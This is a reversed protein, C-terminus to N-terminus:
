RPFPNAMVGLQRSCRALWYKDPTTLHSRPLFCSKGGYSLPYLMPKRFRPDYTRIRGPTNTEALTPHDQESEIAQLILPKREVRGNVNGSDDTEAPDRRYVRFDPSACVPRLGADTGTAQLAQKEHLSATLLSPMRNVAEGLDHIQARGYRAMTLKPDSHRALQMAEKLTAGSRDLLAIFSHRLAHFDTFLPGDPGATVYPIGAAKLEFRLMEAADQFWSGPWLHVDALRDALFGRLMEVLDPPLPQIATQGNKTLTTPLTVTPTDSDLNFSAPSLEALEGARFGSVCAVAYLAARDRGTLERFTKASKHAMTILMRIEALSLPRRDHRRDLKVNGSTVHALPNDPMRRDRVMWRAFSKVASLYHNATQISRGRIARQWLLEVSARPYRRENSEGITALKHTRVLKLFGDPTIQLATAAEKKTFSVIAPLPPLNKQQARLAVLFGQLASISLDPPYVFSCGDLIALIRTRGQKQQRVAISKAALYSIYAELHDRLPTQNHKEFPDVAGAKTMEAKKMLEGLMIRAAEKNASLPTPKGKIRSYWKKSLKHVLKAGSTGKSVRFAAKFRAGAPAEDCPNGAADIWCDYVWYQTIQIKFLDSM